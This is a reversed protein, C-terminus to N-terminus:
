LEDHPFKDLDKYCQDDIQFGDPYLKHLQALRAAGVAGAWMPEVIGIFRDSFEPVTKIILDRIKEFEATPADGSFVVGRFDSM